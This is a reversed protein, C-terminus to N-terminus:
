WRKSSAIHGWYKICRRLIVIIELELETSQYVEGAELWNQSLSDIGGPHPILGIAPRSSLVATWITVYTDLFQKRRIYM